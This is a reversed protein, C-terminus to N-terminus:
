ASLAHLATTVWCTASCLMSINYLSNEIINYLSNEIINYLSNEIRDGRLV